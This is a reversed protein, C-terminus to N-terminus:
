IKIDSIKKMILSGATGMVVAVGLMFNGMGTHFLPDMYTPESLGIFLVLFVPILSVIWRAMRGQATLTRVLRRLAVNDRITDAVRDLVEAANGGAERQLSAVLAVQHLDRNQMREIVVALSKELPVGLKEDAVVREFEKKAPEPADETAVALAGAFSQGARMASAIVQLNDHLQEGFLLRQKSAHYAIYKHVAWPLMLAFIVVWAAGSVASLFWAALVTVALTIVAIQAPARTIGAIDVDTAFRQWRAHGRLRSELQRYLGDDEREEALSDASRGMAAFAAIRTEAPEPRRKQIAILAIAFCVLLAVAFGVIVMAAGSGWFGDASPTISPLPAASLKRSKYDLTASGPVGAVTAEVQVRQGPGAVSSYRVLYERALKSGLGDYIRDLDQASAASAYVGGTEQALRVLTAQSFHQSELGVTFVRVGNGQGAHAVDAVSARSGTDAGDSLVIVSGVNVDATRLMRLGAMVGDRVHTEKGLTPPDALASDIQADDITPALLTHVSRNFTVIGLTQSPRRHEAFTRAAAMAERIPAGAMSNSADIVLVTGLEGESATGASTVELEHVPDGNEFVRVDAASASTGNPLSLLFSRHPFDAEGGQSLRPAEATATGTLALAAALASFVTFFARTM